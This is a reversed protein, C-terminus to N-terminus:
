FPWVHWPARQGRHLIARLGDVIGERHLDSWPAYHLGTFLGRNAARAPACGSSRGHERGSAWNGSENM